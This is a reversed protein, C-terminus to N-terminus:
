HFCSILLVLEGLDDRGYNYVIVASFNASQAMRIKKEFSCNGRQIIAVFTDNIEIGPDEFPPKVMTNCGDSPNAKVALYRSGQSPFSPGFTAPMDYFVEVLQFKLM